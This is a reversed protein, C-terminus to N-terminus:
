RDWKCEFHFVMASLNRESKTCSEGDHKQPSFTQGFSWGKLVMPPNKCHDQFVTSPWVETMFYRAPSLTFPRKWNSPHTILRSQADTKARSSLMLSHENPLRASRSRRSSPGTGDQTCSPSPTVTVEVLPGLLVPMTRKMPGTSKAGPLQTPTSSSWGSPSYNPPTATASQPWQSEPPCTSPNFSRDLSVWHLWHWAAAKM